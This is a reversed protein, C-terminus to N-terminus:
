NEQKEDLSMIYNLTMWSNDRLFQKNLTFLELNMLKSTM